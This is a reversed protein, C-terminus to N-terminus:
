LIFDFFNNNRNNIIMLKRKGHCLDAFDCVARFIDERSESPTHPWQEALQSVKLLFEVDTKAVELMLRQTKPGSSTAIKNSDPIHAHSRQKRYRIISKRPRFGEAISDCEAKIEAMNKDNVEERLLTSLKFLKPLLDAAISNVLDTGVQLIRTKAM